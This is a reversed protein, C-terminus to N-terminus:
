LEKIIRDVYQLNARDDYSPLRTGGTVAEIEQQAHEAFHPSIAMM